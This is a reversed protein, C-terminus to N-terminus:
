KELRYGWNEKTQYKTKRIKRRNERQKRSERRRGREESEHTAVFFSYEHIGLDTGESKPSCSNYVFVYWENCLFISAMVKKHLVM